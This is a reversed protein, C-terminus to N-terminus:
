SEQLEARVIKTAEVMSRLKEVAVWRATQSFGCDPSIWLDAAPCHELVQRIRSAIIEPTEVSRGKVDVVGAILEKGAGYKAWLDIEAMNRNAFELHVQSCNLDPVLPLLGKYTRDSTAPRGRFNGFCLHLSIGTRTGEVVRNFIDVFQHERGQQIVLCPEDVQIFDAGAEELTRIERNVIEVLDEAIELKNQYHPESRIRFALTVPGPIGIRIPKKTWQRAFQLEQALQWGGKEAKLKGDAAYADIQDPGPYGFKRPYDIRKLNLSREYFSVVFDIRRMEGDSIVDCGTGEMDQIALRVADDLTEEVDAPGFLGEKFGNLAHFLWSPTGHSGIVTTPLIPLDKKSISM